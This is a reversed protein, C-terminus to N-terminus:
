FEIENFLKYPKTKDTYNLQIDTPLNIEIPTQNYELRTKKACYVKGDIDVCKRTNNLLYNDKERQSLEHWRFKENLLRNHMDNNSEESFFKKGRGAQEIWHSRKIETIKKPNLEPIGELNSGALEQLNNYIREYIEKTADADFGKKLNKTHQYVVKAKGMKFLDLFTFLARAMRGSYDFTELFPNIEVQVEKVADPNQKVFRTLKQAEKSARVYDPHRPNVWGSTSIVTPINLNKHITKLGEVLSHNRTLGKITTELPNSDEAINIVKNGNLINFGLRESIVKLGNTFGKLDEYLVTEKRPNPVVANKMCHSCGARCGRFLNITSLDKSLFAIDSMKVGEFVDLDTQFSELMLTDMKTLPFESTKLYSPVKRLYSRAPRSINVMNPIVIM